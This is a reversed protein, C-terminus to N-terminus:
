PVIGVPVGRLSRRIRLPIFIVIKSWYSAKDGFPHLITMTVISPLYSVAGSNEFPVLKFSRSHGKVWM